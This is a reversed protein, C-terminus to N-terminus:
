LLYGKAIDQAINVGNKIGRVTKHLTSDEDEFEDVLRKLRNAIGKKKVETKDDIAEAQELLQAAQGLEKAEVTNGTETLLSALENLNGQLGINCDKFNFTNNTIDGRMLQHGEGGLIATEAKINYVTVVNEMGINQDTDDDWYPKEKNYHNLIKKDQLWLANKKEIELPIEGFRQIRYELEPKKSKYSKFIDNLTARLISLYNTKDTGKVSVSITRDEKGLWRRVAKEM